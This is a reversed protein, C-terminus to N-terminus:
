VGQMVAKHGSVAREVRKHVQDSIKGTEQHQGDRHGPLLHAGKDSPANASSSEGVANKDGTEKEHQQQWKMAAYQLELRFAQLM